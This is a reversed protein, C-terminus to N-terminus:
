SILTVKIEAEWGDIFDNLESVEIVGGQGVVLRQRKRQKRLSPKAFLKAFNQLAAMAEANKEIEESKDPMVEALADRVAAQSGFEAALDELKRNAIEVLVVRDPPLDTKVHFTGNYVPAVFSYELNENKSYGVRIMEERDEVEFHANSVIRVAGQALKQCRDAIAPIGESFSLLLKQSLLPYRAIIDGIGALALPLVKREGDRDEMDMAAYLERAPWPKSLFNYSLFAIVFRCETLGENIREDIKDGWEIEAQDLWVSLGRKRLEQALPIVYDIKDESAHCLFFDKM